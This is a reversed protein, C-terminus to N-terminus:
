YYIGIVRADTTCGDYTLGREVNEFMKEESDVRGILSM